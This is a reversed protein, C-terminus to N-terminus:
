ESGIIIRRQKLPGVVMKGIYTLYGFALLTAGWAAAIIPAMWIFASMEARKPDEPLYAISVEEGIQSPHKGSRLNQRFTVAAGTATHFLIVPPNLAQVTGLTTKAHRQFAWQTFALYVSFISLVMGIVIMTVGIRRSTRQSFPKTIQVM